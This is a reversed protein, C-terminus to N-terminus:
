AAGAARTLSARASADDDSCREVIRELEEDGLTHDSAKAARRIEAVMAPNSAIGNAALWAMINSEGSMPGIAFIQDRGILDSPVGSYMRNAAHEGGRSLAKVIASAHVGSAHRFADQGVIPYNTPITHATAQSVAACYMKLSSIDRDLAGHLALNVLLQDMACNGVREGIGLATGHVRSAGAKLAVLSNVLALGRDNHGHFDLGIHTAGLKHLLESTWEFLEYVGEPTAHGVTDCIVLREAGEDIAVRFLDELVTPHARVTDETVFSVKLGANVGMSVATRVLRRMKDLTWGEAWTRIPSAGLFTLLEIPVGTARSIDIVPQIDAPLTRAAASARVALGEDRIVECLATVDAVQRAGAAPLGLDAVDIGLLDMLRLLKLKDAVAPDRVSASQLGDRLTEDLLQVTRIPKANALGRLNWDYVFDNPLARGDDRMDDGGSTGNAIAGRDVLVDPSTGSSATSLAIDALVDSASTLSERSEALLYAPAGEPKYGSM